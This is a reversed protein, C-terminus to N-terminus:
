FNHGIGIDFGSVGNTGNANGASNIQFAANGSNEIKGYNAYAQTRKSMAYTFGIGFKTADNSGNADNAVGTQLVTIKNDVKGFTAKGVWKGAFPVSASLMFDRYDTIKTNTLGATAANGSTAARNTIENSDAVAALKMFGFDYSAGILMVRQDGDVGTGFINSTGAANFKQTRATEYDVSARFPGNEYTLMLTNLRANNENGSVTGATGVENGIVSSSYAGTFQFGNWKPSIYAVANDARDLALQMQNFNGVTNGAFADYKVMENYRVGDLRGAVLTGFNGTLGVYSHRNNFTATTGTLTTTGATVGSALTNGTSDIGLGFEFEFIAKLGNGLDEAGRFGLRSSGNNSGFSSRSNVTGVGGNTGTTTNMYGMDARGYVTVNSQAFAPASVIGAIALAILKKQM